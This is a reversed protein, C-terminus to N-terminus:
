VGVYGAVGPCAWDNAIAGSVVERSITFLHDGDSNCSYLPATDRQSRSYIFGILGDEDSLAQTGAVQTKFIKGETGEQTYGAPGGYPRTSYAHRDSFRYAFHYLAMM